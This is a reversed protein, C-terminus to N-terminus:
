KNIELLEQFQNSSIPLKNEVVFDFYEKFGKRIALEFKVKEVEMSEVTFPIRHLLEDKDNFTHQLDQYELRYGFPTEIIFLSRMGDLFCIEAIGKSNMIKKFSILDLWLDSLSTTEEAFFLEGNIYFSVLGDFYTNDAQSAINQMASDVVTDDNLSIYNGFFAM